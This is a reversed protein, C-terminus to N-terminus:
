NILPHSHQATLTTYAFSALTGWIRDDIESGSDYPFVSHNLHDADSERKRQKSSFQQTLMLMSAM